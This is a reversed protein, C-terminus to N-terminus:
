AARLKAELQKTSTIDVLTIVVGRIVDALSRYPMIRVSFWRGDRSAIQKECTALTRLTERADALLDAYDLSSTLDSLPRGIDSERLSVISQTKETFRRVNLQNDLFLTAIQTSDLLNKM